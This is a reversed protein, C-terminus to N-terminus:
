KNDKKKKGSLYAESPRWGFYVINRALSWLKELAKGGVMVILTAISVFPLFIVYILGVVPGLLLMAAKKLINSDEEYTLMKM